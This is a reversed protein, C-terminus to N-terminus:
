AKALNYVGRALTYNALMGGSSKATAAASTYQGAQREAQFNNLFNQYETSQIMATADEFGMVRATLSNLDSIAVDQMVNHTNQNQVGVVSGSDLAVGSAAARARAAANTSRLNKLLTNGAIQWNRSEQESKQMTRGAQVWAYTDSLDARVQAVALTDRAAVLYNAQQSIAAAQQYQSEAYTLLFGAGAQAMGAYGSSASASPASGTQAPASGGNGLKVGTFDLSYDVAM